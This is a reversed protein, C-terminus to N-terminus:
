NCSQRKKQGGFSVSLKDITHTGIVVHGGMSVPGSVEASQCINADAGMSLDILAKDVLFRPPPTSTNFDAGMSLNLDLTEVTGAITYSAGMSGKLTLSADDYSCEEMDITVGFTGEVHSIPSDTHILVDLKNPWLEIGDENYIVNTLVLERNEVGWSLKNLMSADGSAKFQATKGCVIQVNMGKSLTIRDFSDVSQQLTNAMIYPSAFLLMSGLLRNKM